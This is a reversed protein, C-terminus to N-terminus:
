IVSNTNNCRYYNTSQHTKHAEQKTINAQLLIQYTYTMSTEDNNTVPCMQLHSLLYALLSNSTASLRHPM